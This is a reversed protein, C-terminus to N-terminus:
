KKRKEMVTEGSDMTIGMTDHMKPKGMKAKMTMQQKRCRALSALSRSRRRLLAKVVVNVAVALVVVIVVFSSGKDEFIFTFVVDRVGGSVNLEFDCDASLVCLTLTFYKCVCLSYGMDVKLGLCNVRFRWFRIPSCLGSVRLAVGLVDDIRLDREKLSRLSPKSSFNM